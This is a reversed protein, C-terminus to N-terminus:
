DEETNSKLKHVKRFVLGISLYSQRINFSGSSTYGTKNPFYEYVGDLNRLPAFSFGVTYSFSPLKKFLQKSLDINIEPCIRHTYTVSRSYFATIRDYTGTLICNIHISAGSSIYWRNALSVDLIMGNSFRFDVSLGTSWYTHNVLWYANLDSRCFPYDQNDALIRIWYATNGRSIFLGIRHKDATYFYYKTSFSVHPAPLFKPKAVGSILIAKSPPHLCGTVAFEWHSREWQSYYKQPLSLLTCVFFLRAVM